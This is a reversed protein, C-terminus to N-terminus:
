SSHVILIFRIQKEYKSVILECESQSSFDAFVLFHICVYTFKSSYRAHQKSRSVPRLFFDLNNLYAYMYVYMCVYKEATHKQFSIRNKQTYIIDTLFFFNHCTFLRCFKRVKRAFTIVAM